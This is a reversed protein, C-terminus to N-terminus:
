STVDILYVGVAVAILVLGIFLPRDGSSGSFVEHLPKGKTLDDLVDVMTQLTEALITKVSMNQIKNQRGSMGATENALKSLENLRKLEAAKVEEDFKSGFEQDLQISPRKAM